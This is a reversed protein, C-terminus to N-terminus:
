LLLSVDFNKVLQYPTLNGIQYNQMYHEKQLDNGYLGLLFSIAIFLLPDM